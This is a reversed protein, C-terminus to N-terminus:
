KNENTEGLVNNLECLANTLEEKTRWYGHRKFNEKANIYKTKAELLVVDENITTEIKLVYRHVIGSCIVSTFLTVVFRSHNEWLAVNAEWFGYMFVINILVFILLWTLIYRIYINM